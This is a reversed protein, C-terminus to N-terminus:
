TKRLNNELIKWKHCRIQPAVQQGAMAHIPSWFVQFNSLSKIIDGFTIFISSHISSASSREFITNGVVLPAQLHELFWIKAAPALEEEAKRGKLQWEGGPPVKVNKSANRGRM